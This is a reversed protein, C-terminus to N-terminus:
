YSQRCTTKLNFKASFQVHTVTFYAFSWIDLHLAAAAESSVHKPCAVWIAFNSQLLMSTNDPLLNYDVSIDSISIYM